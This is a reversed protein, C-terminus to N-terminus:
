SWARGVSSGELSFLRIGERTINPRHLMYDVFWQKFNLVVQVRFSEVRVPLPQNFQCVPLGSGAHQHSHQAHTSAIEAVALRQMAANPLKANVVAGAFYGGGNVLTDDIKIRANVADTALFAERWTEFAEAALIGSGSVTASLTRVARETWAPLDPDDCDPVTVDNTEKSFNIGRTTLGCPAAFTEPTGGDGLLILLKKASYTTPRAM